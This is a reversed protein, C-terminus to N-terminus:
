QCAAAEVLQGHDSQASKESRLLLPQILGRIQEQAEALTAVVHTTASDGIREKARTLDDPANWLGVVLHLNPFRRRLRLCLVRAHAVATPPMASICVVDAKRQEVLDVMDSPLGRHGACPM